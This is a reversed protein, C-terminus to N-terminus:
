DADSTVGKELVATVLGHGEDRVAILKTFGDFSLAAGYYNYEIHATKEPDIFADFVGKIGTGDTVYIYLTNYSKLAHSGNEFVTGDNLTLKTDTM